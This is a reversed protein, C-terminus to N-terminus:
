GGLLASRKQECPKIIKESLSLILHKTDRYCFLDLVSGHLQLDPFM